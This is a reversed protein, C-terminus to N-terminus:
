MAPHARRLKPVTETAVREFTEQQSAALPYYLGIDSIGLAILREVQAVFADPSDYYSLAGGRPRANADFMTYSRQLSAPDRGIEACAADIAACREATEAMQEEFDAKFSLSNWIEARKAAVRLMKPGLGAILIPPRPSQRPRPNMYTGEVQYYRGQYSTVEQSLLLAILEAYEAIREVREGAPWNPLGTM